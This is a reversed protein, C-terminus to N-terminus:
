DEGAIERRTGVPLAPMPDDAVRVRTPNHKTTVSSDVEDAPLSRSTRRMVANRYLRAQSAMLLVQDRMEDPDLGALAALLPEFIADVPGGGSNPLLDGPLCGYAASLRDLAEMSPSNADREYRYIADAGVGISAAAAAVTLGARERASRLYAGYM